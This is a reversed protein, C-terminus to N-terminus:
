LLYGKGGRESSTERSEESMAERIWSSVRWDGGDWPERDWKQIIEKQQIEEYMKIQRPSAERISSAFWCGGWLISSFIHFFRSCISSISNRRCGDRQGRWTFRKTGLRLRGRGRRRPSLMERERERKNWSRSGQVDSSASNDEVKLCRLSLKSLARVAIIEKWDFFESRM